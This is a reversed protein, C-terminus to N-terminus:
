QPTWCLCSLGGSIGYSQRPSASHMKLCLARDAKYVQLLAVTNLVCCAQGVCVYAKDVLYATVTRPKSPLRPNGPWSASNPSMYLAVTVFHKHVPALHPASRRGCAPSSSSNVLQKRDRTEIGAPQACPLQSNEDEEEVMCMDARFCLTSPRIVM